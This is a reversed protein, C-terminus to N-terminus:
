YHKALSIAYIIIRKHLKLKTHVYYERNNEISNFEDLQTM